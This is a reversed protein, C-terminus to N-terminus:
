LLGRVLRIARSLLVIQGRYQSPRRQIETTAKENRCTATPPKKTADRTAEEKTIPTTTHNNSTASQIQRVTRRFVTGHQVDFGGCVVEAPVGGESLEGHQKTIVSTETHSCKVNVVLTIFVYFELLRYLNKLFKVEM